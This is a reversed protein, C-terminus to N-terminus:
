NHRVCILIKYNETKMLYAIFKLIKIVPLDIVVIQIQYPFKLLKM